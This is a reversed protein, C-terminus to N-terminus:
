GGSPLWHREGPDRSSGIVDRSDTNGSQVHTVSDIQEVQFGDPLNIRVNLDEHVVTQLEGRPEMWVRKLRLELLHNVQREGRGGLMDRELDHVFLFEGLVTRQPGAVNGNGIEDLPGFAGREPVIPRWMLEPLTELASVKMWNKTSSELEGDKMVELVLPLDTLGSTPSKNM